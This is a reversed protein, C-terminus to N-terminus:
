AVFRGNPKHDLVEAIFEGRSQSPVTFREWVDPPVSCLVVRRREPLRVYITEAEPDHAEAVIREPEDTLGLHHVHVPDRNEVRAGRPVHRM